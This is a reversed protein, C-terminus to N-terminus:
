DRVHSANSMSTHEHQPVGRRSVNHVQHESSSPQQQAPDDVDDITRKAPTMRLAEPTTPAADGVDPNIAVDALPRTATGAPLPQMSSPEDDDDVINIVETPPPQPDPLLPTADGPVQSEQQIAQTSGSPRLPLSPLPDDSCRAQDRLSRRPVPM